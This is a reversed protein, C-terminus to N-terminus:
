NGLYFNVAMLGLYWAITMIGIRKDFQWNNLPLYVLYLIIVLVLSAMSIILSKTLTFDIAERTKNIVFLGNFGIGLLITIMPTGLCANIGFSPNISSLTLNTIFDNLSNSLSFVVLGLLYESIKWILGLNKLIQLIELSINSIIVVSSLIGFLNVLIQKYFTPIFEHTLGTVAMMFVIFISLEIWSSHFFQFNLLASIVFIYWYKLLSSNQLHNWGISKRIIASSVDQKTSRPSQNEQDFEQSTANNTEGELDVCFNIPILLLLGIDITNIIVKTTTISEEIVSEEINQIVEYIPSRSRNIEQYNSNTSVVSLLSSNAQYQPTPVKLTSSSNVESIGDCNTEPNSSSNFKNQDFDQSLISIAENLNMNEDQWDQILRDKDSYYLFIMYCIYLMTMIICEVLTFKGDSLIILFMFLIFLVWLLDILVLKPYVVQYPSHIFSISGIIITFLILLSGVLEGIVLDSSNNQFAAGYNVLDVFSNSLPVLIFSLISNGIKLKKTLENLNKFLYNSVLISLTICITTIEVLILISIGGILWISGYHSNCYYYRAISYYSSDCDKQIYHCYDQSILPKLVCRNDLIPKKTIFVTPFRSFRVWITIISILLIILWLIRIGKM